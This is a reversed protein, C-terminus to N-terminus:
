VIYTTVLYTMLLYAMVVCAMVTYPAQPAQPRTHGYPLIGFKFQGDSYEVELGGSLKHGAVALTASGNLKLLEVGGASPSAPTALVHVKDRVAVPSSKLIDLRPLRAQCRVM